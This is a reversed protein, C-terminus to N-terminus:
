ISLLIPTRGLPIQTCDTIAPHATAVVERHIAPGLVRIAQYQVSGGMPQAPYCYLM